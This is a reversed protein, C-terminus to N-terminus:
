SQNAARNARQALIRMNGLMEADSMRRAPRAKRQYTRLPKLGGKSQTAGTFAATLWATELMTDSRAENRKRVAKMVIQFHLPTQRWFSDPDFGAECWM